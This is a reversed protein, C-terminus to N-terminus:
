TVGDDDLWRVTRFKTTRDVSSDLLRTRIREQISGTTHAGTCSHTTNRTRLGGGAYTRKRRCWTTTITNSNGLTLQNEHQIM